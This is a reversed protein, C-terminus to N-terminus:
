WDLASRRSAKVQGRHRKAELRRRKATKSPKTRKRPKPAILAQAILARLRDLVAQRNREQTRETQASIHLVDDRTLRKGAATRLRLRGAEDMGVIKDLPVWLEAKTNLKNVNQGGPGGSRAFQIRLATAPVHVGPALEVNSEFRDSENASATLDFSERV